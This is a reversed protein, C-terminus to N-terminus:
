RLVTYTVEYLELYITLSEDNLPEDECNISNFSERRFLEVIKLVLLVM